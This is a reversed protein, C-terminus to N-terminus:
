FLDWFLVSCHLHCCESVSLKSSNLIQLLSSMKSHLIKSFFFKVNCNVVLPYIVGPVSKWNIGNCLRDGDKSITMICGKECDIVKMASCYFTYETLNKKRYPWQRQWWLVPSLVCLIHAIEYEAFLSPLLNEAPLLIYMWTAKREM